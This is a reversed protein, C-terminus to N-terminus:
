INNKEVVKILRLIEQVVENIDKKSTDLYIADQAQVLPSDTRQRDRQDRQQIEQLTKELSLSQKKRRNQDFRRQARTTESADLFIKLDADPFVKTGIDRGEMVVSGNRGLYQQAQVM